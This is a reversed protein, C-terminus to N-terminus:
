GGHPAGRRPCAVVTGAQATSGDLFSFTASFHFGGHPCRRPLLVGQPRYAVRRGHARRYYILNGGIKVNVRAVAVYPGEPVSEVLPVSIQLRGPLLLTSMVERAAVPYIGTASILMNLYGNQSPGAVLAITAAEESIEPSLKFQVAASGRGMISNRPCAKPGDSRLTSPDCSAQGLENAALGLQRPYRFVIGTLASPLEGDAARIQFGLSVAVHAGLRYPAFGASISASQQAGAASPGCAGFALAGCALALLVGPARRGARLGRRRAATSV